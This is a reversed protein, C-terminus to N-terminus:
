LCSKRYESPKVGYLESFKKYFFSLNNYGVEHAIDDIPINSNIILFKARAMKQTQILQKFSSGTAKQIMTSLYTPNYNFFRATSNLTANMYNDELYQLIDIISNNQSNKISRNNIDYKYVRMLQTFLLNIYSNIIEDSFDNPDYFERMLNIMINPLETDEESLFLIYNDHESDKLVSKVLFNSIIGKNSLRSLFSTNFYKKDLEVNIMIDDKGAIDISHPVNTDLLIFQGKTLHIERDNVYQTCSGSYMYNLEVYSHIHEKTETFRPHRSIFYNKVRLASTFFVYVNKNNVITQERNDYFNSTYKKDIHKLEKDTFSRLFSDLDNANM